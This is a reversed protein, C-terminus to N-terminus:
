CSAKCITYAKHKLYFQFKAESLCSTLRYIIFTDTILWVVSIKKAKRLLDKWINKQKEKQTLYFAKPLLGM